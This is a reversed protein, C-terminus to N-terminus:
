QSTLNYLQFVSFITIAYLITTVFLAVLFGVAWSKVQRKKLANVVLGVLFFLVVLGGLGCLTSFLKTVNPETM